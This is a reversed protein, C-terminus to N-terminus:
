EHCYENGLLLWATYCLSNIEVVYNLDLLAKESFRLLSWYSGSLLHILESNKSQKNVQQLLNFLGASDQQAYLVNSYLIVYSSYTQHSSCQLISFSQLIQSAEKYEIFSVGNEIYGERNYYYSALQIKLYVSNPFISKLTNYLSSTM